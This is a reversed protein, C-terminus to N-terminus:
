RASTADTVTLSRDACCAACSDCCSLLRTPSLRLPFSSVISDRQVSIASQTVINKLAKGRNSYLTVASLDRVRTSLCRVFNRGSTQGRNIRLSTKTTRSKVATFHGELEFDAFQTCRSLHNTYHGRTLRMRGLPYRVVSLLRRRRRPSWRDSNQPLHGRPHKRKTVPKPLPPLVRDM